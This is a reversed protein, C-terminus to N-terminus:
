AVKLTRRGRRAASSPRLVIEVDDGLAEMFDLMRSLSFGIVKGRMLNSVDSQKVGIIEAVQKQTLSRRDMEARLRMVLRAKIAEGSADPLGLDEFVNGSGRTVTIEEAAPIESHVLAPTSSM